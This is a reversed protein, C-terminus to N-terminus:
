GNRVSLSALVHDLTEVESNLYDILAFQLSEPYSGSGLFVSINSIRELHNRADSITYNECSKNEHSVISSFQSNNDTLRSDAITATMHHKRKVIPIEDLAPINACGRKKM